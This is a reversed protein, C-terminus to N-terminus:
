SAMRANKFLRFLVFAEKLGSISDFVEHIFTIWGSGKNRDIVDRNTQPVPHDELVAVPLDVGILM